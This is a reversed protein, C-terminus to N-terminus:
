TEEAPPPPIDEAEVDLIVDVMGSPLSFFNKMFVPVPLSASTINSPLEQQRLSFSLSIPDYSLMRGEVGKMVRDWGETGCGITVAM